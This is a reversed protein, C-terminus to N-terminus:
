INTVTKYDKNQDTTDRIVMMLITIKKFKILTKKRKM